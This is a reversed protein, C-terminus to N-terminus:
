MVGKKFLTVRKVGQLQSFAGGQEITLLTKEEETVYAGSLISVTHDFFITSLPTSPGLVMIRALPNCMSLLDEFSHNVLTSGTIAIIRAKALYDASKEAPIDGPRPNKELVWLNQALTRVKDVFPFHGVIAVDKGPANEYLWTYANLEKLDATTIPLLSNIAAMGLSCEYHNDSLVLSAMEQATMNQYHGVNPLNAHPLNESTLTSSLGCHTSCVATWHIGILVRRVPVPEAPLTKLIEELIKM